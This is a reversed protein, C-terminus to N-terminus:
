GQAYHDDRLVNVGSSINRVIELRRFQGGIRSEGARKPATVRDRRDPGFYGATEYYTLTQGVQREIREAMRQRTFPMTVIDDFGLNICASITEVSPSESFYMMPSFRVRRSPCFRIAEAVGRLAAVDPVAAFLFYCVPTLHAQREAAGIGGYPLVTTFGLLHAMDTLAAGPGDPPGIIFATAKM